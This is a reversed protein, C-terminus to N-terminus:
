GMLWHRSELRIRASERELLELGTPRTSRRLFRRRLTDYATSVRDFVVDYALTRPSTVPPM